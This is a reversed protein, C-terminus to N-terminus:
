ENSKEKQTQIPLSFILRTGNDSSAMELQGGEAQIRERMSILGMGKHEQGANFGRGNDSIEMQLQTDNFHLTVSAATASSHRNINSLAEQVIRFLAQETGKPVKGSGEVQFITPIKSRKEWDQIHERLAEVLGQSELQVPRLTHILTSLESQAQRALQNASELERYALEPNEKWQLKAAGLTMTIAFVQQKVSDHLERALRNREELAALEQRTEMMNQLEQSMRNLGDALQSIEDGKQDHISASFDGQGWASATKSLANLRHTIGRAMLAGFIIGILGAFLLFIALSPLFAHLGVQVSEWFTIPSLRAFATGVLVEEDFIPVAISLDQESSVYYMQRPNVDIAKVRELLDAEESTTRTLIPINEEIIAPHNSALVMGSDDLIVIVSNPVSYPITANMEAEHMKGGPRRFANIWERIAQQDPPDQTIAPVLTTMEERIVRIAVLSLEPQNQAFRSLAMFFLLEVLFLAIVTVLMYGLTLKWQLRKMSSFFQRLKKM